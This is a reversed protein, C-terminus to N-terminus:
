NKNNILKFSSVVQKELADQEAKFRTDKFFTITYYNNDPSFFRYTVSLGKCFYGSTNPNKIALIRKVDAETNCVCDGCPRVFKIAELGNVVLKKDFVSNFKADLYDDKYFSDQENRLDITFVEKGKAFDIYNSYPSTIDEAKYASPYQLEFNWESNIYINNKGNQVIRSVTSSAFSSTYNKNEIPTTSTVIKESSTAVNNVVPMNQKKALGFSCGTLTVALCIALIFIKKNQM